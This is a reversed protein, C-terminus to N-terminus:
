YYSPFLQLKDFFSIMKSQETHANRCIANRREFNWKEAEFHSVNKKCRAIKGEAENLEVIAVAHSLFDRITHFRSISQIARM